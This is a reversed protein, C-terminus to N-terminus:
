AGAAPPAAAAITAERVNLFQAADGLAAFVTAETGTLWAQVGLALIEAYLADRRLADLHAAVEDLLLLPAAGRHLAILRAHALVVAILLAKQEGTSCEAAALDRDRHHVALDSRHPGVAAGGAEADRRRAAALQGRLTEEARLAPMDDLWADVDGTLALGAVPFAGVRVACAQALRVVLERRAAAIAVGHRAMADELASLWGDEAGGAKLLRARERLSQEYATIRGAHAADFGYVLRDLFRRRGGAGDRFLSDMQPTLWTMSLVEGLQQQSRAFAGDIKVLRRERAAEPAAADTVAERGTGLERPGGPLIVTAAVAWSGGGAGRRDVECLRARRLGRGPALFSIAELLNTKGAGNPGTLVVPRGDTEVDARAYCRFQSLALRGLWARRGFAAEPGAAEM